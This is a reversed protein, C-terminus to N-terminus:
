FTYSTPISIGLGSGTNTKKIVGDVYINVTITSSAGTGEGEAAFIVSEQSAPVTIEPSTYTTANLGNLSTQDGQADTYSVGDIVAGNTATAKYIIKHSTSGSPKNDSSKSCSVLLTATMFLTFISLTISKLTITKM